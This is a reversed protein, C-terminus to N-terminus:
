IKRLHIRLFSRISINSYAKIHMPLYAIDYLLCSSLFTNLNILYLCLEGFHPFNQLSDWLELNHLKQPHIWQLPVQIKIRFVSRGFLPICLLSNSYRITQPHNKNSNCKVTNFKKKRVWHFIIIIRLNGLGENSSFNQAGM